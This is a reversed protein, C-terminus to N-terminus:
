LKSEKLYIPDGVILIVDDITITFQCKVWEGDVFTVPTTDVLGYVEVETTTNNLITASASAQITTDSSNMVLFTADTVTVTGADDETVLVRSYDKANKPIRRSM